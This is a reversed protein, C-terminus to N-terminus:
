SARYKEFLRIFISLQEYDLRLKLRPVPFFLPRPFTRYPVVYANQGNVRLAFSFLPWGPIWPALDDPRVSVFAEARRGGSVPERFLSRSWRPLPSEQDRWHRGTRTKYANGPCLRAVPWRYRRCVQSQGTM